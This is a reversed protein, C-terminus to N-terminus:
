KKELFYIEAENETAVTVTFGDISYTHFHVGEVEETDFSHMDSGIGCGILKFYAEKRTWIESFSRKGERMACAENDSFYKKVFREVHSEKVAGESPEADIGVRGEGTSLICAVMGNKHTLNFEVGVSGSLYPKGLSDVEIDEASAKIGLDNLADILLSRGAAREDEEKGIRQYVLKM